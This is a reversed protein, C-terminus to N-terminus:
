LKHTASQVPVSRKTWQTSAVYTQKSLIANRIYKRASTCELLMNDYPEDESVFVFFYLSERQM